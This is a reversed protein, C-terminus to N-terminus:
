KGKIATCDALPLKILPRSDPHLPDSSETPVFVLSKSCIKLWGNVMRVGHAGSSARRLGSSGSGSGASGPPPRFDPDSCYTVAVDKFYIEGPELLLLSFRDPKVTLNTSPPPMVAAKIQGKRPRPCVSSVLPPYDM